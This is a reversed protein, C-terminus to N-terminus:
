RNGCGTSPYLVDLTTYRWGTYPRTARQLYHRSYISALARSFSTSTHIISWVLESKMRRTCTVNIDPLRSPYRQLYPSTQIYTSATTPFVVTRKIPNTMVLYNDTIKRLHLIYFNKSMYDWSANCSGPNKCQKM